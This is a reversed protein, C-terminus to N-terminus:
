LVLCYGADLHVNTFTVETAGYNLITHPGTHTLTYTGGSTLEVIDTGDEFGIVRDTGDASDFLFTDAGAGGLLADNGDEGNLMDADGGGNLWDNGEGGRLMDAGSNGSLRDDDAGGNMVDDGVQGYMTDNGDGCNMFDRSDKGLM